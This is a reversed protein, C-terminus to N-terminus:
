GEVLRVAAGKVEYIRSRDAWLSANATILVQGASREIGTLAAELSMVGTSRLIQGRYKWTMPLDPALDFRPSNLDRGLDQDLALLQIAELIAEVGLSGPMVPDQYFHNTFFWDAPDIAKRAFVYGKGDRGGSPAIFAETFLKLKQDPLRYFPKGIEAQYYPSDVLHISRGSLGGQGPQQFLPLTEQKGDLGLQNAMAEPPFFGFVSSGSYV